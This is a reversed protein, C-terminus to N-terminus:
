YGVVGAVLEQHRYASEDIVLDSVDKECVTRFGGAEDPVGYFVGENLSFHPLHEFAGSCVEDVCLLM